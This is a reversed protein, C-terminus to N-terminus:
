QEPDRLGAGAGAHVRPHPFPQGLPRADGSGNVNLQDYTVGPLSGNLQAYFYSNANMTLGTATLKGPSGGFGQGPQLSAGSNLTIAGVSGKGSVTANSWSGATVTSALQTGDFQGRQSVTTPGTYTNNGSLTVVDGIAIGGSGSIVGTANVVYDFTLTFGGLSINGNLNLPGCCYAGGMTQAGALVLDANITNPAATSSIGNSIQIPLGGIVYNSGSFLISRLTVDNTLDNYNTLNSAGAPFVVPDGNGPVGGLWNASLSWVNSVAGTWTKAAAVVSLVVDNGTGGIYTIKFTSANLTLQAGEPLGNFSGSVPDIGDNDILVYSQGNSPTFGLTPLLSAAPDITVSGIVAVQDHSVGPVTGNIQAQLYSGSNFTLSRTTLKGVAGGFGQGPSLSAGSNLTTIGITGQGSVTANGFGAATVASATQVGDFQARQSVTTPGTYSSNGSLTVVDGIFLGGTGSISGAVNVQYSLTLDFGGFDIPGNLNLPGCCYAGGVTQTGSFLVPNNITNPASTSTIGNAIALPMGNLIYNSGSFLISRFVVDDTIDNTNNLNAAGSPFVLPDSNGPVGGLWNGANTWAASAAGTWTKAAATVTLVIDNGTGGVYSIQFDSANMTLTAGEPLNDFTGSVPDAGDNDVLVFTQGNTPAFGLTALLSTGSAITVSGNVKLQDYGTAPAAGNIQIGLYSGSNMTLGGCTLRGVAGGFGQGPSAQAGSTLTVAGTTGSGSVITSSFGSATVPSQPQIGNIEVRQTITTPGTYTNNASLTIVDGLVLGGSGIIYGVANVQYDFTLLNSGLYITGNLILPGCCYAGGMTQPATVQLDVNITNPAASSSIGNSLGLSSGNIVYNGGLFTLDYYVTGAPLDNTMTRNVGTASFVLRDGAAPLGGNWNGPNSWLSNVAGNWTKTDAHASGVLSVLLLTWMLVRVISQQTASRM